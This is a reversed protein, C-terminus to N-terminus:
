YIYNSIQNLLKHGLLFVFSFYKINNYNIYINKKLFSAFGKINKMFHIRSKQINQQNQIQQNNQNITNSHIM